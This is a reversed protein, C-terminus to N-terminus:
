AQRIFKEVFDMAQSNESENFGHGAGSIICLTCKDGYIEKAKESYSLPVATDCDGHIILVDGNYNKIEEYANMGMATKVYNGGLCLSGSCIKEPINEPNFSFMLMQGKRADDPICLAPYFLVLKNITNELESATMASVFGGQSCGMLTINERDTYDLKKVYDIVALLDSKETLVTMEHLEGDSETNIGGGIFDFCYAAYGWQAFQYAYGMVDKRCSLFGHCIIAMPLNEGDPRLETGKIVFGNRKIEFTSETINTNM